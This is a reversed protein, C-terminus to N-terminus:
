DPMPSGPVDIMQVVKFKMKAMGKGLNDGDERAEVRKV